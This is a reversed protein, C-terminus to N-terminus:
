AERVVTVGPPVPHKITHIGETGEVSRHRHSEPRVSRPQTESFVGCLRAGLIRREPSPVDLVTDTSPYLSYHITCPDYGM